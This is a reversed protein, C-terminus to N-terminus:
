RRSNSTPVQWYHPHVRGGKPENVACDAKRMRCGEVPDRRRRTVDTDDHLYKSAYPIATAAASFQLRSINWEELRLGKQRPRRVM